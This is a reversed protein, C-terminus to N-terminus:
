NMSSTYYSCYSHWRRADTPGTGGALQYLKKLDLITIMRERLQIIGDQQLEQLARTASERGIGVMNALHQQTTKWDILYGHDTQKGFNAYLDLLLNAIRVRSDLFALYEIKRDAQALRDSVIYLIRRLIEPQEVILEELAKIEIKWLMTTELASVSALRRKDHHVAELEGIPQGPFQHGLVIIRDDEQRFIQLTGSKVIYMENALDGQYFLVQNKTLTLSSFRSLVSLEDQFDIGEFFPTHLVSTYM